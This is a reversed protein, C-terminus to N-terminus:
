GRARFSRNAGPRATSIKAAQERDAISEVLKAIRLRVRPNTTRVYAKLVRL